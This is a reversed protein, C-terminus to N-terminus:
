RLRAQKADQLRRHATRWADVLERREHKADFAVVAARAADVEAQADDIAPQAAAKRANAAALRREREKAARADREALRARRRKPTEPVASAATDTSPRMERKLEPIRGEGRTTM